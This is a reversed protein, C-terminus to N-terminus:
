RQSTQQGHQQQNGGRERETGRMALRMLGIARGAMM